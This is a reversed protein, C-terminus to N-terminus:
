KLDVCAIDIHIPALRARAVCFKTETAIACCVMQNAWHCDLTVDSTEDDPDADEYEGVESMARGGPELDGLETTTGSESSWVFHRLRDQDMAVIELGQDSVALNFVAGTSPLTPGQRDLAFALLNVVGTGRDVVSLVGGNTWVTGLSPGADATLAARIPAAGAGSPLEAGKVGAMLPVLMPERLLEYVAPASQRLSDPSVAEAQSLMRLEADVAEDDFVQVNRQRAADLDLSAASQDAQGVFRALLDQDIYHTEFGDETIAINLALGDLDTLREGQQDTVFALVHVTGKGWDVVYVLGKNTEVSQLSLFKGDNASTEFSPSIECEPAGEAFHATMAAFLKYVEPASEILEDTAVPEPTAGLAELQAVFVREDLLGLVTEDLAPVDDSSAAPDSATANAGQPAALREPAPKSQACAVSGALSCLLILSKSLTTM